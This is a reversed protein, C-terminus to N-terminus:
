RGAAGRGLTNRMRIMDILTRGIVGPRAGKPQGAARPHHPIGVEVVRAGSLAARLLLETSVFPSRSELTPLLADLLSRDIAKFACHVDRFEVHFWRRLLLHYVGAIAVRHLPDQRKLRYGIVMDAEALWPLLRQIDTLRFQRDADTFFVVDGRSARLGTLLAEGYGLNRVHSELRIEPAQEAIRRVVESTTDSSGDDVVVVEFRQACLPLIERCEELLAPLNQAENWSPFFCTLFPIHGGM